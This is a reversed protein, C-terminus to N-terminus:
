LIFEVSVQFILNVTHYFISLYKILRSLGKEKNTVQRVLDLKQYMKDNLKNTFNIKGEM